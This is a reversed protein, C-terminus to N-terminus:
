RSKRSFNKKVLSDAHSKARGVAADRQSSIFCDVFGLRADRMVLNAEQPSISGSQVYPVLHNFVERKASRQESKVHYGAALASCLSAIGFATGLKRYFAGQPVQMVGAARGDDLTQLSNESQDVARVMHRVGVLSGVDARSPIVGKVGPMRYDSDLRRYGLAGGYFRDVGGLGWLRMILNKESVGSYVCMVPVNLESKGLRAFMEESYADLLSQDGGALFRWIPNSRVDFKSLKHRVYRSFDQYSLVEGPTDVWVSDPLLLAGKHLLGVLGDDMIRHADHVLKMRGDPHYLAGDSSNFCWNWKLLGELRGGMMQAASASVYGSSILLPMQEVVPGEFPVFELDKINEIYSM